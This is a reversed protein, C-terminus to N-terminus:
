VASQASAGGKMLMRAFKAFTVGSLAKTFIDAINEGSAIWRFYVERNAVRERVHHNKM